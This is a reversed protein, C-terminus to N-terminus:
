GLMGLIQRVDLRLPVILRPGGMVMGILSRLRLQNRSLTQAIESCLSLNAM